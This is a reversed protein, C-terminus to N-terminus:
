TRRQEFAGFFSNECIMLEGRNNHVPYLVLKEQLRQIETVNTKYFDATQKVSM